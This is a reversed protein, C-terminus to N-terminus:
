SKSKRAALDKHIIASQYLNVKVKAGFKHPPNGQQHLRSKYSKRRKILKLSM